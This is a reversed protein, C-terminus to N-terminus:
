HSLYSDILQNLYNLAWENRGYHIHSMAGNSMSKQIEEGLEFDEDLVNVTIDHNRQWHTQKSELDKAPVLTAIHIETKDVAVPRFHIWDIHEHQVLLISSPFLLYLIHSCERLHQQNDPLKAVELLHKSPLILRLHEGLKDIVATNNMFFPGITDSHAYSFHYTEIGGEAVLKWNANWLRSHRKFLALNDLQLWELGPIADKLQEDLQLELTQTSNSKQHEPFVWIFGYKEICPIEILNNQSKDLNPFCHNEGPVSALKGDTTYSWAHYPCTIRKTCSGKGTVLTAGRHRCMNHFIHPEGNQDRSVILNGLATQTHTVSNNDSIESSHVVPFPVKKHLKEMELEFREVSRYKNTASTSENESLTTTKEQNLEHCRQILQLETDRNM